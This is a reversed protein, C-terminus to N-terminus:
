KICIFFLFPTKGLDCGEWSVVELMWVRDETFSYAYCFKDGMLPRSQQILKSDGIQYDKTHRYQPYLSDKKLLTEAMEDYYADAPSIVRNDM